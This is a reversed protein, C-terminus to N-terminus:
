KIFIFGIYNFPLDQSKVVELSFGCNHATQYVDIGCAEMSPRAKDSNKCLSSVDCTKCIRCPGSMGFAKYFGDLFLTRELDAILGKFRDREVPKTESTIALSKMILGESYEGVMTRTYEPTPAYPPCTHSKGHQACGYQCKLRVWNGVVVNKTDVIKADLVGVARAIEIYKEYSQMKKDGKVM